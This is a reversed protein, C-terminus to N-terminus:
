GLIMPFPTVGAHIPSELSPHPFQAKLGARASLVKGLHLIHVGLMGAASPFTHSLQSREM